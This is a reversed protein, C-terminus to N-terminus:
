GGFFGWRKSVPCAWCDVWGGRNCGGRSGARWVSPRHNTYLTLLALDIFFINDRFFFDQRWQLLMIHAWKLYHLPVALTKHQLHAVLHLRNRYVAELGVLPPGGDLRCNRRAPSSSWHLLLGRRRDVGVGQSPPTM